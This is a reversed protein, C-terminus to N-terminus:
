RWIIIRAFLRYIGPIYEKNRIYFLAGSRPKSYSVLFDKEEENFEKSYTDLFIKAQKKTKAYESKVSSMHTLKNIIHEISGVHHAGISNNSHQRYYSTSKDLYVCRGFKSCVLALWYDHMRTEDLKTCDLSKIALARNFLTAGGTIPNRFIVQKFSEIHPNLKHYTMLSTALPKLNSDTPTQDSFVLLPTMVGYSAEAEEMLHLMEEMKWNFWVDDQDSFFIYDAKSEKLLAFFHDRANGYRHVPQQVRIKGPHSKQYSELIDFTEDTSHDDSIVLTFDTFTQALISDIQQAVFKQGNYTTMLIEVKPM